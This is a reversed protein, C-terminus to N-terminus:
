DNIHKQIAGSVWEDMQTPDPTSYKDLPKGDTGYLVYRSGGTRDFKERKVTAFVKGHTDRVISTEGDQLASFEGSYKWGKLIAATRLMEPAVKDYKGKKLIGDAIVNAYNSGPAVKVMVRDGVEGKTKKDTSRNYGNLYVSGDKHMVPMSTFELDKYDKVDKDKMPNTLDGPKYFQFAAPNSTIQQKISKAENDTLAVNVPKVTATGSWTKALTEATTHFEDRLRKNYDEDAVQKATRVPVVGKGGTADTRNSLGTQLQVAGASESSTAKDFAAKSEYGMQRAAADEISNKIAGKSSRQDELSTLENQLREKEDTKLWKYELAKKKDAIDSDLKTITKNLAPLDKDKPDIQTDVGPTILRDVENLDHARQDRVFGNEKMGTGEEVDHQTYKLKGYNLANNVIRQAAIDAAMSKKIGTLTEGKALREQIDAPLDLTRPDVKSYDLNYSAMEQQLRMDSQAHPDNAIGNRIIADIIKPDMTVTKKDSSRIWQGDEYEYKEGNVVPKAGKMWKDVNENWNYDDIGAKGVYRGNYKGTSPDRQIGGAQKDYYDSMQMLAMQREPTLKGAIVRKDLEEKYDSRDKMRAAFGAYDNPLERGMMTVERLANELDPRKSLEGLKNRYGSMVEQLQATDNPTAKMNGLFQSAWDMGTQATDYKQQQVQAVQMLEPVVSGQYEPVRTSNQLRYNDYLGM